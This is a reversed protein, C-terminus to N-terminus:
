IKKNENIINNIFLAVDEDSTQMSFNLNSDLRRNVDTPRHFEIVVKVELSTEPLLNAENIDLIKRIETVSYSRLLLQKAKRSIYFQKLKEAGGYEASKKEYYDKGMVMSQGTIVCKVERDM